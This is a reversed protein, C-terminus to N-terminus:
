EVCNVDHNKSGYTLVTKFIWLVITPKHIVLVAFFGVIKRM